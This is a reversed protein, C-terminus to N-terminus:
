ELFHPAFFCVFPTFVAFWCWISSFVRKYYVQSIFLTILLYFCVYPYKTFAFVTLLLVCIMYLVAMSTGKDWAVFDIHKGDGCVLPVYTDNQLRLIHPISVIIYLLVLVYMIYKYYPNVNIVTLILAALIPHLWVGM